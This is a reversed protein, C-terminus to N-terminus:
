GRADEAAQTLLSLILDAVEQPSLGTTEVTWDACARYLSERMQLLEEIEALGGVTLVPRRARTTNDNQLRQWLTPADATLWVIRGADRLRQRNAERLVVGGGTAIVRQKLRCLDELLAAEKDRFGAEGEEAFIRAISRGHREELAADADVCNWGLRDALLGAVTTKGTGRYGILFLNATQNRTQGTL